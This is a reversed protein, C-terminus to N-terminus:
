REAWYEDLVRQAEKFYNELAVRAPQAGSWAHRLFENEMPIWVQAEVPTITIPKSRQMAEIMMPWNSTLNFYRRDLTFKRVPSPRKQEFMFWWGGVESTTLWKILLWSEDPHKVNSAIGYGWGSVQALWTEAGDNHPILGVGIDINPNQQEIIFLEWVGGIQMTRKGQAFTGGTRNVYESIAAPGGNVQHTFDMVWEVAEIGEPSFFTYRRADPNAYEGNNSHLWSIFWRDGGARVDVGLMELRGDGGFRSLRRGLATFERWTEPLREADLGAEAFLNKNYYVVGNAGAGTPMPLVYTKDRWTCTQFESPFFMDPRVDRDQRLYPDLPVILQSEALAPVEHRGIMMVDPPAGSAVATVFKEYRQRSDVIVHEVRIGPHAAEFENVIRDMLPIRTGGWITWLQLTVRPRQEAAWGLSTVGLCLLLALVLRGRRDRSGIISSRM